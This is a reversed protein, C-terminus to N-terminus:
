NIYYFTVFRLFVMSLNFSRPNQIAPSSADPSAFVLEKFSKSLIANIIPESPLPIRLNVVLDQSKKTLIGIDLSTSLKFAEFAALMM